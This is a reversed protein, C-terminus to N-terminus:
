VDDRLAHDLARTERVGARRRAGLLQDHPPLRDALRPVLARSHKVFADARALVYVLDRLPQAASFALIITLLEAAQEDELEILLAPDDRM